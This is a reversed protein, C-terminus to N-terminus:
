PTDDWSNRELEESKGPEGAMVIVAGDTELRIGAVRLGAAVIARVAKTLDRQRVPHVGRSM